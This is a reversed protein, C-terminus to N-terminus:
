KTFCDSIVLIYKNGDKTDPLPGTVDVCIKKMPYNVNKRVSGQSQTSTEQCCVCRVPQHVTSHRGEHSALLLM